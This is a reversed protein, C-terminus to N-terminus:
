TNSAAVCTTILDEAPGTQGHNPKGSAGLKRWVISLIKLTMHHGRGDTMLDQKRQHKKSGGNSDDGMGTNVPKPLKKKQSQELFSESGLPLFM